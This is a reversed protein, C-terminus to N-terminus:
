EAAQWYSMREIANGIVALKEDPALANDQVTDLYKGHLSKASLAFIRYGEDRDAKHALAYVLCHIMDQNREITKLTSASGTYGYKETAEDVIKQLRAIEATIFGRTVM